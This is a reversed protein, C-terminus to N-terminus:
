PREVIFTIDYDTQERGARGPLREKGGSDKEDRGISYIIYGTQSTRYRLPRGDFPDEPIADLHTSVLDALSEPLRGAAIRYREVAVATQATQLRAQNALDVSALTEVSPMVIRVIAYSEPLSARRAEIERFRRLRESAPLRGAEIYQRMLDLYTAWECDLVGMARRAEISSLSPDRSGQGGSFGFSRPNRFAEYGLCREGILGNALANPDRATRLVGDLEALSGETLAVRNLVRELADTAIGNCVYRTTQSIMTPEHLLTRALAYSSAVAKAAPKGEGRDAHAAAELALLRAAKSMESVHPLLMSLGRTLDVPYRSQEITASQHLLDLAERNDALLKNARTQAEQDLPGARALPQADDFLPISEREEGEPIRLRIFAETVYDAANGGLAPAKYWANLEVFTVPEGAARIAAIRDNLRMRTAVRLAGFGILLIGFLVVAVHWAKIKRTNDSPSM